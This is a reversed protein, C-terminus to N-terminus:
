DNESEKRVLQWGDQLLKDERWKFKIVADSENHSDIFGECFSATFRPVSLDKLYFDPGCYTVSDVNISYSKGIEFSLRYPFWVTKAYTKNLVSIQKSENYLSITIELRIISTSAEQLKYEINELLTVIREIQKETM